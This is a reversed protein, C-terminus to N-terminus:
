RYAKQRTEIDIIKIVKNNKDLSYFIRYIGIRVRYLNDSGEIKKIDFERWPIPDVRLTSFLITIKRQYSISLRLRKIKRLFQRHLLIRFENSFM